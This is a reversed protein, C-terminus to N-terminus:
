ADGPKAEWPDRLGLEIRVYGRPFAPGGYGMFSWVPPLSCYATVCEKLLAKFFDTQLQELRQAQLDPTLAAFDAGLAAVGARWFEPEPPQGEKRFGEGTGHAITGDIHELVKGIRWPDDDALLRAAAAALTARYTTEDVSYDISAQQLDVDEDRSLRAKLETEFTDLQGIVAQLRNARAGVDARAATLGNQLDDLSPLCASVASVDGSNLADRLDILADLSPGLVTEGDVNVALTIGQGVSRNIQGADGQYVVATPPSGVEVFPGATQQYGAFLYENGYKTNGISVMEHVLQGVEAGVATMEAPSLAGNSGRLALDHARLVLKEASSLTSDTAGLWSLATDANLRYQGNEALNRRVALTRAM